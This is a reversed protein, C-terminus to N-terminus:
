VRKRAAVVVNEMLCSVNVPGVGGPVPTFYAVKKGIQDQDYDAQLKNDDAHLGVGIVISKKSVMDPSIINPRGVCSIIIDSNLCLKNLGTTKSHAVKFKINNNELYNAIPKGATEGRGIVLIKKQSLWLFFNELKGIKWNELKSKNNIVGKMTANNHYIWQLIKWVALAIPPDFKSQPHFGDVDKEPRVINDLEEKSIEISIPRQIIIGHVSSDNNLKNVLDILTFKLNRWRSPAGSQSQTVKWTDQDGEKQFISVIIGIEEGAKKKQRVYVVSGPDSGLLIVALHPSLVSKKLNKVKIKLSDKIEQAILRGDIIM